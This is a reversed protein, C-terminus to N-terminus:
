FRLNETHFFIGRKMNVPLFANLQGVSFFFLFERFGTVSSVPHGFLSPFREPKIILLIWYEAVLCRSGGM